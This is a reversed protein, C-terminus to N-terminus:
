DAGTCFAELTQRLNQHEYQSVIDAQGLADILIFRIRGDLTKKDMGMAEIMADPDVPDALRVPLNFASILDEIRGAVGQELRHERESFQAAMVM